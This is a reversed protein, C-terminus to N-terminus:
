SAIPSIYLSPIHETLWVGNASLYFVHGDRYMQGSRVRLILASGRRKGVDRATEEDPSLHVHHRKMKRLGERQISNLRNPTTGHYLFEPPVVPQYELKVNVSHGQSARIRLGDDSTAFRRKNNGLVVKELLSKSIPRGFKECQLLLSAIDVWGNHDLKIGIAEPRHRLVLSLFKSVSVLEREERAQQNTTAM